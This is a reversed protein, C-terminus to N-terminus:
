KDRGEMTRLQEIEKQLRAINMEDQGVLRVIAAEVRFAPVILSAGNYFVFYLGALPIREIILRDSGTM